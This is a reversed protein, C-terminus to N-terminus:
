SFTFGALSLEDKAYLYLFLALRICLIAMCGIQKYNYEYNLSFFKNHNHKNKMIFKIFKFVVEIRTPHMYTKSFLFKNKYSVPLINKYSSNM